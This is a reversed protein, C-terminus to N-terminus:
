VCNKNLIFKKKTNKFKEFFEQHKLKISLNKEEQIKLNTEKELKDIELLIFDNEKTDNESNFISDFNLAIKQLLFFEDLYFIENNTIISIKNKFAYKQILCNTVFSFIYFKGFNTKSVVFEGNNLLRIETLFESTDLEHVKIKSVFDISKSSFILMDGRYFFIESQYAISVLTKSVCINDGISNFNDESYTAHLLTKIENTKINFLFFGKEKSSIVFIDNLPGFVICNIFFNQFFNRDNNREFYIFYIEQNSLNVFMISKVIFFTKINCDFVFENNFTLGNTNYRKIINKSQIFISDDIIYYQTVYFDFNLSIIQVKSKSVKDIITIDDCFCIAINSNSIDQIKLFFDM